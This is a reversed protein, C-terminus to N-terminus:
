LLNRAKLKGYVAWIMSSTVIRTKELYSALEKIPVLIVEIDEEPDLSQESIKHADSALYVLTDDSMLGALLPVRMILEMKGAVYGTEELLERRAAKIPSNDNKEQMGAPVELVNEMRPWRFNKILIVENKKTIAFIVLSQTSNPRKIYEWVSGKGLSSTFHRSVVHLFKGKYSVKDKFKKKSKPM